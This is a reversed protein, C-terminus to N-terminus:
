PRTLLERVPGALEQFLQELEQPDAGSGSELGWALLELFGAALFRVAAGKRRKSAVIGAVEDQILEIVLDRFRRLVVQGSGKGLLARFARQNEYAHEIMARAFAFPQAPDKLSAVQERIGKRFAELGGTLVGEKDAFHLYFTSRGVDARECLEQVSFEDWGREAILAILAERLARHTKEIRRDSTRPTKAGM